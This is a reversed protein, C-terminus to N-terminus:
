GRGALAGKLMDTINGNQSKVQYTAKRKGGPM